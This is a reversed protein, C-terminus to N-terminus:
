VQLKGEQGAESLILVFKVDAMGWVQLKTM